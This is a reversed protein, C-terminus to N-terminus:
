ESGAPYETERSAIEGTEEVEHIAASVHFEYHHQPRLEGLVIGFKENKDYDTSVEVIDKMTHNALHNKTGFVFVQFHKLEGRLSCPLKWTLTTQLINSDDKRPKTEYEM